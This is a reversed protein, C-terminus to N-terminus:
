GREDFPRGDFNIDAVATALFRTGEGDDFCEVMGDTEDHVQAIRFWGIRIGEFRGNVVGGDFLAFALDDVGFGDGERNCLSTLM